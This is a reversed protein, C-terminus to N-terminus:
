GAIDLTVPTRFAEPKVALVSASLGALATEATTGMVLGPIDTRAVTGMVVLDAGTAAAHAAVTDGPVGQLVTVADPAAGPCAAVLAALRDRAADAERTVLLDIAAADGCAGRLAREEPLHWVHLVELAAGDRAALAAALDLVLRDPGATAGPAPDVAALIRRCPAPTAQTLMWVPCPCTRLLHMDFGKFAAPGAPADAAATATAGKILLDHGERQVMRVIEVLPTGQLVAESVEVGKGRAEEAFRALRARHHALIDEQVEAARRGPLTPLSVEGAGPGAAVADVLTLAAGNSRALDIARALAAEALSDETLVALISKFRQM